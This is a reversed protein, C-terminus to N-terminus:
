RARKILMLGCGLAKSKGIGGSLALSFAVPDTVTLRGVYDVSSFLVPKEGPRRVFRHQEYARVGSWLAMDDPLIPKFGHREGQRILWDTAAQQQLAQIATADLGQKKAQFKADMLVDSRKKARTIVPNARLQFDLQMGRHLQLQWPKTEVIFLDHRALPPEPSLLYFCQDNERHFLFDRQTKGPFLQWLWQHSVYPQCAGWKELMQPTLRSLMLRVRSLYM